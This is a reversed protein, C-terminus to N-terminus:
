RQIKLAQCCDFLLTLSLCNYMAARFELIFIKIAAPAIRISHRSGASNNWFLQLQKVARPLSLLHDPTKMPQSVFCFRCSVFGAGSIVRGLLPIRTPFLIWGGFLLSFGRKCFNIQHIICEIGSRQWSHPTVSESLCPSCFSSLSRM